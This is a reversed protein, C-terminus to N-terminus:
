PSLLELTHIVPEGEIRRQKKLAYASGLGEELSNMAQAHENFTRYNHGTLIGKLNGHERAIEIMNGVSTVLANPNDGQYKLQHVTCANGGNVFDLTDGCVLYLDNEEDQPVDVAYFMGDRSHGQGDFATIFVDNIGYPNGDQVIDDIVFPIPQLPFKQRGERDLFWGGFVLENIADKSPFEGNESIGGASKHVTARYAARLAFAGGSHDQHGHTLFLDTKKFKSPDLEKRALKRMDFFSGRFATDFVALRDDVRLFYAISTFGKGAIHQIAPNIYRTKVAYLKDQEIVEIACTSGECQNDTAGM